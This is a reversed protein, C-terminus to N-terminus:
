FLDWRSDAYIADRHGLGVLYLLENGAKAPWGLEARRRQLDDIVRVALAVHGHRRGKFSGEVSVYTDFIRTRM